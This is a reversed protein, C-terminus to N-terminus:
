TAEVLFMRDRMGLVKLMGNREVYTQAYRKAANNVLRKVAEDVPLNGMEWVSRVVLGALQATAAALFPDFFGTM